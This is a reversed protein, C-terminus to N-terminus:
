EDHEGNTMERDAQDDPCADDDDLDLEIDIAPSVIPNIFNWLQILIEDPLVSLKFNDWDSKGFSIEDEDDQEPDEPSLYTIDLGVIKHNGSLALDIGLTEIMPKPKPIKDVWDGGIILDQTCQQFHAIERELQDETDNSRIRKSHTTGIELNYRKDIENMVTFEDLGDAHKKIAATLEKRAERWAEEIANRNAVAQDAVERKFTAVWGDEAKMDAELRELLSLYTQAEGLSEFGFYWRWLNMDYDYHEQVVDGFKHLVKRYMPKAMGTADLPFIHTDFYEELQDSLEKCKASTNELEKRQNEFFICDTVFQEEDTLIWSHIQKLRTTSVQGPLGNDQLDMMNCLAKRIVNFGDLGHREIFTKGDSRKDTAAADWITDWLKKREKESLERTKQRVKVTEGEENVREASEAIVKLRKQREEPVYYGAQRLSDVGEIIHKEIKRRWARITGESVNWENSLSANTRELYKPLTLMQYCAKRRETETFALGVGPNATDYQFNDKSMTEIWDEENGDLVECFVLDIKADIAAKRRHHGCAVVHECSTELIGEINESKFVVLPYEILFGHQKMSAVLSKIHGENEERNNYWWAAHIETPPLWMSKM